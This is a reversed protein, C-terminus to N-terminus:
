KRPEELSRLLQSLPIFNLMFHDSSHTSHILHSLRFVGLGDEFIIGFSFDM